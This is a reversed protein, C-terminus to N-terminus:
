DLMRVELGSLWKVHRPGRSTDNLSVLALPGESPPLPAGDRELVVYVGDGIPSLFLEAWSFVAKYGDRATAIVVSRRFGRPEREVLKARKLVDRLLVGTVRRSGDAGSQVPLKRLDDLTLAVPAEVDGTVRLTDGGQAFVLVPVALLSALVARRAANM